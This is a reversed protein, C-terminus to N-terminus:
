LYPVRAIYYGDEVATKFDKGVSEYLRSLYRTGLHTSLDTPKPVIRNRVTLGEENGEIIVTMPSTSSIMNHQIVNEVLIQLTYPILRQERYPETNSIEVKFLENFRIALIDTYSHLFTLEEGVSVEMRDAQSLIYRYIRSLHLVYEKSRETDVSIFSYLINLSNFLFHPNVQAKLAEYQYRLIEQQSLAQQMMALRSKKEYYLSEFGVIILLNSFVTGAYEVNEGTTLKFITNLVALATMAIAMDLLFKMWNVVRIPYRYIVLYNVVVLFLIPVFNWLLSLLLAKIPFAQPQDYRMWIYFTQFVVTYVLAGGVLWMATKLFQKM